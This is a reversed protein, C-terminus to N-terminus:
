ALIEDINYQYKKCCYHCEVQAIEQQERMELLERRGISALINRTKEGSCDCRYKAKGSDLVQPAFGQLVKNAIMVPTLGDELMKTVSPLNAINEELKLIEDESAGPLLQLLFGGAKCISLDKNVLVGLACVTPTQESAAYYATIDEAIEGSVLPTNGVYPEKLGLDKIATFTGNKGVAKGVDLKGDERFPIEVIPTSAYGKVDGNGNSVAVINGIPGGGNVKLSLRDNPNKLFSGMLSAGTLLRGLAASVVASTQHLQEMKQVMETSDIAVLVMGGNESILRVINNM